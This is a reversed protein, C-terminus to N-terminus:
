TGLINQAAKLIDRGSTIFAAEDLLIGHASSFHVQDGASSFRRRLRGRSGFLRAPVDENPGGGHYAGRCNDSGRGKHRRATRWQLDQSRLELRRPRQAFPVLEAKIAIEVM